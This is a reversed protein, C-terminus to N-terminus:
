EFGVDVRLIIEKPINLGVSNAAKLNLALTVKRALEILLDATEGYAAVPAISRLAAFLAVAMETIVNRIMHGRFLQFTAADTAATV